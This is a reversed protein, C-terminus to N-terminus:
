AANRCDISDLGLRASIKLCAGKIARLEETQEVLLQRFEANEAQLLATQKEAHVRREAFGDRILPYLPEFSGNLEAHIADRMIQPFQKWHDMLSEHIDYPTTPIFFERGEAVAEYYKWTIERARLIEVESATDYRLHNSERSHGAMRMRTKLKIGISAWFSINHKRFSKHSLGKTKVGCAELFANMEHAGRWAAQDASEKPVKTWSVRNHEPHRREKVGYVLEPLVYAAKEGLLARRKKLLALLPPLAGFQIMENTKVRYYTIMGTDWNIAAFPLFVTDVIQPGGSAGIWFLISQTESVPESNGGLRNLMTKLHSQLFAAGSQDPTGRKPLRELEAICLPNLGHPILRKLIGRIMKTYLEVTRDGLDSSIFKERVQAFSKVKQESPPLKTVEPGLASWLWELASYYINDARLRQRKSYAALERHALAQLSKRGHADKLPQGEQAPMQESPLQAPLIEPHATDFQAQLSDRLKIAADRAKKKSKWNESHETSTWGRLDNGIAIVAYYFNGKPLLKINEPNRM